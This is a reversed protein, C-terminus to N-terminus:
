ASLKKMQKEKRRALQELELQSIDLELQTGDVTSQMSGGLDFLRKQVELENENSEVQLEGIQESTELDILRGEMKLRQLRQQIKMLELEDRAKELAMQMVDTNLKMLREGAPVHDGAQHYLSDIRSQFPASVVQEYLPVLTGTATVTGEIVGPEATTILLRRRAIRRSLLQRIGFVAIVLIVIILIYSSYRKILQKRLERSDLNRDM